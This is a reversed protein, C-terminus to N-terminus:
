DEDGIRSYATAMYDFAQGWKRVNRYDQAIRLASRASAVSQNNLEAKDILTSLLEYAADNGVETRYKALKVRGALHNEIADNRARCFELNAQFTDLFVSTAEVASAIAKMWPAPPIKLNCVGEGAVEVGIEDPLFEAFGGVVLKTATLGAKWRNLQVKDVLPSFVHGKKNSCFADAAGAKLMTARKLGAQSGSSHSPRWDSTFADPDGVEDFIQALDSPIFEWDPIKDMAEHLFYLLFPPTRDVIDQLRSGDGVGARELMPFRDTLAALDDGFNRLRGRFDACDTGSACALKPGAFALISLRKKQIMELLTPVVEKVLQGNEVLENLQRKLDKAVDPINGDLIANAGDIVTLVDPDCETPNIFEWCAKAQVSVLLLCMALLYRM